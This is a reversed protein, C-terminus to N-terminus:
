VSTAPTLAISPFLHHVSAHGALQTAALTVRFMANNSSKGMTTAKEKQASFRALLCTVSHDLLWATTWIILLLESFAQPYQRQESSKHATLQHPVYRNPRTCM